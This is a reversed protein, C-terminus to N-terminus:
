AWCVANCKAPWWPCTACAAWLLRGCRHRRLHQVVLYRTSQAGAKAYVKQFQTTGWQQVEASLPSGTTGLARVTHLGDIASLDIGAKMCNAFYAAGGGFFTVGEQAAYRWLVGWDPKDKSGGPNGDYIVCTTGSLLGSLQANWM